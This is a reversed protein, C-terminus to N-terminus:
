FEFAAVLLEASRTLADFRDALEFSLGSSAAAFDVSPFVVVPFATAFAAQMTVFIPPFRATWILWVNAISKSGKLPEHKTVDYL